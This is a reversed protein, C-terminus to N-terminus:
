PRRATYFDSIVELGASRGANRKKQTPTDGSAVAPPDLETSAM